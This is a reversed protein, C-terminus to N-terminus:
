SLLKTEGIIYEVQPIKDHFMEATRTLDQINKHRHDHILKAMAEANRAVGVVSIQKNQDLYTVLIVTEEM